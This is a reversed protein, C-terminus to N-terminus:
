DLSTHHGFISRGSRFCSKRGTFAHNHLFLASVQISPPLGATVGTSNDKERASSAVEDGINKLRRALCATCKWEMM